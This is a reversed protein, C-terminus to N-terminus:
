RSCSRSRATMRGRMRGTSSRCAGRSYALAFDAGDRRPAIGLHAVMKAKNFANLFDLDAPASYIPNANLIVLFDVKGANLDAVLAKFDGIQDSPIPNLPQSAVTVTKGVNGLAENIAM